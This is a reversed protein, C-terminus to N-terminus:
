AGLPNDLWLIFFVAPVQLHSSEDLSSIFFSHGPDCVGVDLVSTTFQYLQVDAKGRGRWQCAVPHDKIGSGGYAKMAHVSVVKYRVLCV